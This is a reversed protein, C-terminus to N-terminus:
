ESNGAKKKFEGIIRSIEERSAESRPTSLTEPPEAMRYHDATTIKGTAPILEVWGADAAKDVLHRVILPIEQNDEVATNWAFLLREPEIPLEREICQMLMRMSSYAKTAKDPGTTALPASRYRRSYDRFKGNLFRSVDMWCGIRIDDGRIELDNRIQKVVADLDVGEGCYASQLRRVLDPGMLPDWYDGAVRLVVGQIKRLTPDTEVEIDPRKSATETLQKKDSEVEQFIYLHKEETETETEPTANQKCSAQAKSAEQKREALMDSDNELWHALRGLMKEVQEIDRKRVRDPRAIHLRIALAESDPLRGRLEDDESAILWLRVLFGVPSNGCIKLFEPDELLDHYLKIWPPKRDKYHQFRKWNKVRRTASM